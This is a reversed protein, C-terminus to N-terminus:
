CNEDLWKEVARAVEQLAEGKFPSKLGEGVILDSFPITGAKDVLSLYTTWAEKSNEQMKVWFQLAVTQALCYDIYYFPRQYIHMQRQWGKGDGYFPIDGLKMWPMYVALLEQWVQHREDPTLSPNEYIEHQFHDVLVGYPIFTITKSLHTEYYKQTDKGFFGEEWPWAFFEMSMSHIECTEMTGHCNEFPVINRARYSAFAHGAEHTMVDVDHSTDNFNAFIFAAKYDPISTCYGGGSKGKRSLVDLLENEYMFDIFEATEPSLEHYFKKAHALIEDAGYQPKPNGDRYELAAESFNMPYSFELKKTRNRYIRDAVPVIYKVVSERFAAVEEKTYSNREMRYYGLETYGDYGLKKGMSDRVKVLEDFISDFKEGNDTYFKGEAKWAELRRVDDADQKFPSLQSLTYVNGEFPIQASAILKNYETSLKNENQLDTIIDSHFTMRKMQANIFLLSGYKEEFSSRYPSDLLAHTWQQIAEELIPTNEDIFAQEQDYYADETNITNRIYALSFMTEVHKILNDKELFVKDAEAFDSAKTLRETLVGFESIVAAIDVREYKMENFKM